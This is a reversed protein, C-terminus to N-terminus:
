DDGLRILFDKKKEIEGPIIFNFDWENDVWFIINYNRRLDEFVRIPTKLNANVASKIGTNTNINETTLPQCYDEIISKATLGIDQEPYDEKIRREGLIGDGTIATINVYRNNPTIERVYGRYTEINENDTVLLFLIDGHNLFEVINAKYLAPKGFIESQGKKLQLFQSVGLSLNIPYGTSISKLKKISLNLNGQYNLSLRNGFSESEGKGLELNISEEIIIGSSYGQSIDVRRKIELYQNEAFNANYGFSESNSKKLELRLFLFVIVSYGGTISEGKKITSIFDAM